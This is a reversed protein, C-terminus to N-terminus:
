STTFPIQSEQQQSPQVQWLAEATRGDSLIFRLLVSRSKSILFDYRGNDSLYDIVCRICTTYQFHNDQIGYRIKFVVLRLLHGCLIDITPKGLYEPLDKLSSVPLMYQDSSSESNESLLQQVRSAIDLHHIPRFRKCRLQHAPSAPQDETSFLASTDFDCYCLKITAASFRESIQFHLEFSKLDNTEEVIPAVIIDNWLRPNASIDDLRHLGIRSTSDQVSTYHHAKYSIYGSTIRIQSLEAHPLSPDELYRQYACVGGAAKALIHCTSSNLKSGASYGAVVSHVLQTGNVPYSPWVLRGM